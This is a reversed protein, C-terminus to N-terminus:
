SSCFNGVQFSPWYDPLKAVLELPRQQVPHNLALRYSHLAIGLPFPVTSGYKRDGVIAHGTKALQVRIQHKRGTELVVKLLSHNETEQFVEYDLVARQAGEATATTTHM